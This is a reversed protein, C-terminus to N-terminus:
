FPVDERNLQEMWSARVSRETEDFGRYLGAEALKNLTEKQKENMVGIFHTDWIAVAQLEKTLWDIPGLRIADKSTMYLNMVEEYSIKLENRLLELLAMQHSPVAYYVVGDRDMIAEFYTDEFVRKHTDIDFKSHLVRQQEEYNM